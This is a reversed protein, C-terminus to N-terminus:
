LEGKCRVGSFISNINVENFYNSQEKTIFDVKNCKIDKKDLYDIIIRELEVKELTIIIEKTIKM